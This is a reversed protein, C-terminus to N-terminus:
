HPKQGRAIDLSGVSKMILYPNSSKPLQSPEKELHANELLFSAAFYAIVPQRVNLLGQFFSLGGISQLTIPNMRCKEIILLLVVTRLDANHSRPNLNIFLHHFISINVLKVVPRPLVIEGGLFLSFNSDRESDLFPDLGPLLTRLALLSFLIDFMYLLNEEDKEQSM